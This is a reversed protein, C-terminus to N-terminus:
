IFVAMTFYWTFDIFQGDPLLNFKLLLNNKRKSGILIFILYYKIGESLFIILINIIRPFIPM